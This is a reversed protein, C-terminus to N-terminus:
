INIYVNILFSGCVVFLQLLSNKGKPYFKKQRFLCVLALYLYVLTNIYGSMRCVPFLTRKCLLM